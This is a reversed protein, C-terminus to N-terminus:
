SSAGNLQKGIHLVLIAANKRDISSTLHNNACAKHDNKSQVKYVAFVSILIEVGLDVQDTCDHNSGAQCGDGYLERKVIAVLEEGLHAADLVLAEQDHANLQYKHDTESSIIQDFVKRFLLTLFVQSILALPLIVLDHDVSSM